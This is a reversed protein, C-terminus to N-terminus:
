TGAPALELDVIVPLHDSGLDPGIRSAVARFERSTVVRDVTGGVFTPLGLERFYRTTAPWLSRDTAVLGSMELFRHYHPSLPPTNWDGAVIVPRDAADHRALEAYRALSANRERWDQRTHPSSPHIGYVAVARPTGSADPLLLEVRVSANSLRVAPDQKDPIAVALPHPSLIATDTGYPQIRTEYEDWRKIRGCRAACEELVIVDPKLAALEERLRDPDVSGQLVNYTVVRLYPEAAAASKGPAVMMSAVVYGIGGLVVLVGVWRVIGRAVIAALLLVGAAMPHAAFMALDPLYHSGAAWYLAALGGGGILLILISAM